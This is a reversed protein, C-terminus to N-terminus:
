IFHTPKTKIKRMPKSRGRKGGISTAWTEGLSQTNGEPKCTPRGPRLGSWTLSWMLVCTLCRFGPNFRQTFFFPVLLPSSHSTLLFNSVCNKEAHNQKFSGLGNVHSNVEAARSPCNKPCGAGASVQAPRVSCKAMRHITPTSIM